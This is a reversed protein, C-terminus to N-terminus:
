LSAPFINRTEGRVPASIICTWSWAHSCWVRAGWNGHDIERRSLRAPGVSTERNQQATHQRFLEPIKTIQQDRDFNSTAEHMLDDSALELYVQQMLNVKLYM